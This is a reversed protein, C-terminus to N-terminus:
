RYPWVVKDVDARYVPVLPFADLTLCAAVDHARGRSSLHRAWSSDRALRPLDAAYPRAQDAAARAEPGARAQPASALLREVLLGACVEDELSRAGREGACAVVVDRGAAVAWAAVASLNVFAAVAVAAAARVALLTGTGNSTTLFVLRGAVRAETFELPSNGLDFGALPEGRREGALLAGPTAAARERAEKPDSVPVVGACGHALATVISTSARLVDIVLASAGPLAATALVAPTPAVDVRV